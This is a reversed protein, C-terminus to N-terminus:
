KISDYALGQMIALRDMNFYKHQYYNQREKEDLEMLLAEIVMECYDDLTKEKQNHDILSDLWSKIDKESVSDLIKVQEIRPPSATDFCEPCIGEIQLLRKHVDCPPNCQCDHFGDLEIFFFFVFKHSGVPFECFQQIIFQLHESINPANGWENDAVRCFFALRRDSPLLTAAQSKFLTFDDSQTQGQAALNSWELPLYTKFRPWFAKWTAEPTRKIDFEHVFVDDLKDLDDTARAFNSAIFLDDYFYFARKAINDPSQTKCASIFYFLNQDINAYTDLSARIEMFAKTRDLQLLKSKEIGKKLPIQTWVTKLTLSRTGTNAPNTNSSSINTARQLNIVNKLGAVVAHLAEDINGWQSISLTENNANKPLMVVESFYGGYYFPRALVPVIHCAGTKQRDFAQQLTNESLFNDASFHSSWLFVIIDATALHKNIQVERDEGGLIKGEEWIVIDKARVLASLHNHLELLFGRDATACLLILNLPM